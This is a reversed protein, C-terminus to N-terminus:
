TVKGSWTHRTPVLNGLIVCRSVLWQVVFIIYLSEAFIRVRAHVAIICIVELRDLRKGEMHNSIDAKAIEWM